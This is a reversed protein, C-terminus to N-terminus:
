SKNFNFEKESNVIKSNKDISTLDRSAFNNVKYQKKIEEQAKIDSNIKSIIANDLTLFIEVDKITINKKEINEFFDHLKSTEIRTRYRSYRENFKAFFIKLKENNSNFIIYFLLNLKKSFISNPYFKNFISKFHKEKIFISSICILTLFLVSSLSLFTSNMMLGIFNAVNLASSVHVFIGFIKYMKSPIKNINNIEARFVSLEESNYNLYDNETLEKISM